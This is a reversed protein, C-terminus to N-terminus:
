LGVQVAAFNSTFSDIVPPADVVITIELSEVGAPSTGSLTYTTTQAPTVVRSGVCDVTDALVDLPGSGDDITLAILPAHTPVTFLVEPARRALLRYFLTPQFLLLGIGGLVPLAMGAAAALLKLRAMERRSRPRVRM